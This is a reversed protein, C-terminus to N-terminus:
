IVSRSNLLFFKPILFIILMQSGYSHDTSFAQHLLSLTGSTDWLMFQMVIANGWAYKYDMLLKESQIFLQIEDALM